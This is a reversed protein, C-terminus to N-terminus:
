DNINDRLREFFKIAEETDRGRIVHKLFELKNTVKELQVLSEPNFLIESLLFDDEALLGEAITQHKKFTTGPVTQTKMCAAFVMTSAFPLTLSYAMMEDHEQFSYEYINVGLNSFFRRFFAAGESDSEKIIVVNEDEIRDVNAFTPGFMPHVSAFRYGCDSYFRPLGGKVSAMDALITDPPVHPLVSEFASRTNRISVANILLSPPYKEFDKWSKLVRIRGLQDALQQSKEPYQDFVSIENDKILTQTLWAGMHGAGIIAINM